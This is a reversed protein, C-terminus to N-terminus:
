PRRPSSPASRVSSSSGTSASTSCAPTSRCRSAWDPSSSRRQASWPRPCRDSREPSTMATGAGSPPSSAPRTASPGSFMAAYGKVLGALAGGIAGLPDTGLQQLRDVDTLLILLAGVLFATVLALAPHSARRLADRIRYM